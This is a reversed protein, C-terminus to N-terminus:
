IYILICSIFHFCYLISDTYFIYLFVTLGTNLPWRQLLSFTAKLSLQESVIILSFFFIIVSTIYISVSMIVLIVVNNSAVNLLVETIDHRNNKKTLFFPPEPSSWRGAGGKPSKPRWQRSGLTTKNHWHSRCFNDNILRINVWM